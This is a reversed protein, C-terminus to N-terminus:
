KKQRQPSDMQNGKDHCHMNTGSEEIAGRIEIEDNNDSRNRDRKGKPKDEHTKKDESENDGSMSTPTNWKMHQMKNQTREFHWTAQSSEFIKQDGQTM